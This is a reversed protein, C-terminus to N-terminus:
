SKTEANRSPSQKTSSRVPTNIQREQNDDNLKPTGPHRNNQVPGSQYQNTERSQPQKTKPTEPNHNYQLTGKTHNKM